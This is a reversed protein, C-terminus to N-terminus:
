RYRRRRLGHMRRPDQGLGNQREKHQHDDDVPYLCDDVRLVYPLLNLHALRTVTAAQAMFIMLSPSLPIVTVTRMAAPVSDLMSGLVRSSSRRDPITM